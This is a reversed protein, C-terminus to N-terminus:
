VLRRIIRQSDDDFTYVPASDDLLSITKYSADIYQCPVGNSLLLCKHVNLKYGAKMNFHNENKNRADYNHVLTVFFVGHFDDVSLLPLEYFYNTRPLDLTIQGPNYTKVHPM